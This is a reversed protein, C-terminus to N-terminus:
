VEIIEIKLLITSPALLLSRPVTKTPFYESGFWGPPYRSIVMSSSHSPYSRLPLHTQPLPVFSGSCKSNSTFAPLRISPASKIMMSKEAGGFFPGFSKSPVHSLSPILNVLSWFLHGTVLAAHSELVVPQLWIAQMKLKLLENQDDWIAIQNLSCM